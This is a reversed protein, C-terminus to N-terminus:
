PQNVARKIEECVKTWATERDAPRMKAFPKDPPSVVAQHDALRAERYSCDLILVWLIKVGAAEAEKLLPGLEHEDIFDSELFDRSVLLVAISARALADKIKDFWISGAEIQKDSWASFAGKRLYPKLHV